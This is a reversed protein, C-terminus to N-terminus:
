TQDLIRYKADQNIHTKINNPNIIKKCDVFLGDKHSITSSYWKSCDNYFGKLQFRVPLSCNRRKDIRVIIFDKHAQELVLPSMIHQHWTFLLVGLNEVEVSIQGTLTM